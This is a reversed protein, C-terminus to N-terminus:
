HPRVYGLLRRCIDREYTGRNDRVLARCSGRLELIKSVHGGPGGGLARGPRSQVVIAGPGASTRPFKLWSRALALRPDRQGTIRMMTVGCTFRGVSRRLRASRWSAAKAPGFRDPAGAASVRVHVYRDDSQQAVAATVPALALVAACLIRLM